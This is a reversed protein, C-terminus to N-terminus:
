SGLGPPMRKQLWELTEKGTEITQTPYFREQLDGVNIGRRAVDLGMVAIWTLYGVAIGVAAGVQPGFTIATFAGVLAGLIALGLIAGIRVGWSAIRVAAAFGILVGVLAGLLVGAVLPRVGAEVNLRAAEGAAGYVQNLWGLGLAVGIVVAALVAVIFSRGIRGASVGAAMLGAAIAIASFALIGHLVGWGMSGLLWEGLFLATGIVALLGALIVVVIAVAALAAIRGIENRISSLEAKALDVHAQVLGIAADRTAM